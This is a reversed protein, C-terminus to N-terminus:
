NECERINKDKEQGLFFIIKTKFIFYTFKRKFKHCFHTVTADTLIKPTWYFNYVFFDVITKTTTM